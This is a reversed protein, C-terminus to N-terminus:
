RRPSIQDFVGGDAFYQQQNADWNGFVAEFTFEKIKPFIALESKPIGSTSIPRYFNEVAIRQGQSSYLGSLYLTAAERTGHRDVDKDVVAVPAEAHISLSPDVIEYQGKGLSKTILFAENEWALM